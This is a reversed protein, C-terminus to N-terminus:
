VLKILKGNNNASQEIASLIKVVKLGLFIDSTIKKNYSIADIFEKLEYNLSPKLSYKPHYTLQNSQYVSVKQQNIDDFKIKQNKGQITLRRIKKNGYWSINIFGVAGNIFEIKAKISDYLKVDSKHYKTVKVEKIDTKVISLMISIPHPGWDWIVSVDDRKPSLLGEFMISKIIGIRNALQKCKNFASNYLYTHGVLVKPKKRQWITQLELAQQYNTTLPKEILFNKNLLLLKKAIDFHTSTPTAIIFGDIDKNKVISDISQTKIYTDPLTDLTAQTKACVYKIKVKDLLAASHLLNKGWKGVGILALTTM